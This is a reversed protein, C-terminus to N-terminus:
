PLKLGFKDALWRVDRSFINQNRAREQQVLYYDRRFMEHAFNVDAHAETTRIHEVLKEVMDQPFLTHAAFLKNWVVHGLPTTFSKPLKDNWYKHGIRVSDLMRVEGGALWSKMSLMLEDCGWTRLFRLADLHFFWPQTIFYCAGMIAPIEANDTAWQEKPLWVCELTQTKDKKQRDPGHFNFTAGHYEANPKSLDMNKDDLGLCCACYITGGTATKWGYILRKMALDYWGETFRMHSDTILLWDGSAHLAGIHRSPGCGCRWRNSVLKLNKQNQFRWDGALGTGSCDDVLVIEPEDGATARISKVTEYTEDQDNVTAIIVSLNM